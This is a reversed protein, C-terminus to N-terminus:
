NPGRLLNTNRLDRIDAKIEAVVHDQTNLFAEMTMRLKQDQQDAIAAFKQDQQDAIAAFKRDQQDLLIATKQDQQAMMERHHDRQQELLRDFFEKLSETSRDIKAEIDAQMKQKETQTEIRLEGIKGDIEKLKKELDMIVKTNQYVKTLTEKSDKAWQWFDRLNKKFSGEGVPDNEETM